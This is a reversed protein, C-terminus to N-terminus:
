AQCKSFATDRVRDSKLFAEGSSFTGAAYDLSMIFGEDGAFPNTM